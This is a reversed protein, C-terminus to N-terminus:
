SSKRELFMVTRDRDADSVESLSRDVGASSDALDSRALERLWSGTGADDCRGAARALPERLGEVARRTDGFM